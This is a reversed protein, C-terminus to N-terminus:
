FTSEDQIDACDLFQYCTFMIVLHMIKAGAAEAGIVFISAWTSQQMSGM